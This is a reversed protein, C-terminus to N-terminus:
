YHGFRPLFKLIFFVCSFHCRRCRCHLVYFDFLRSLFYRAKRELVKWRRHNFSFYSTSSFQESRPLRLFFVKFFSIFHMQQIVDVESIFATHANLTQEFKMKHLSFFVAIHEWKIKWTFNTKKAIRPNKRSNQKFIQITQSFKFRKHVNKFNLQFTKKEFLLPFFRFIWNMRHYIVFFFVFFFFRPALVIKASFCSIEIVNWKITKRTFKNPVFDLLLGCSSFFLASKSFWCWWWWLCFFIGRSLIFVLFIFESSVFIAEVVYFVFIESLIHKIAFFLFNM